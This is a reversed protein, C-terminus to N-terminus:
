RGKHVRDQITLLNRLSEDNAGKISTIVLYAYNITNKLFLNQGLYTSFKILSDANQL